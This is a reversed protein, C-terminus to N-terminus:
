KPVPLKLEACLKAFRPDHRYPLIFPDYLLYQVGGDKLTQARELWEFMKDPNKRLAYAGAIQYPANASERAILTNLAADASRRDAGIQSALGVAIDQWVGPPEGHASDLSAKADGRQIEITALVERYDVSAPQLDIAKRIAQEAEDLRGLPQLYTALSAYLNAKLPETALAQRTLDAAEEPHGMTALVDAL